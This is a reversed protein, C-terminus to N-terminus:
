SYNPVHLRHLLILYFSPPQGCIFYYYDFILLLSDRRRTTFSFPMSDYNSLFPTLLILCFYVIYGITSVYVLFFILEIIFLFSFSVM